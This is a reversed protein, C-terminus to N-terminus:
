LAATCTYTKAFVYAYLSVQQLHRNRAQRNENNQTRVM